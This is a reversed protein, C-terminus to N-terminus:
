YIVIAVMVSISQQVKEYILSSLRIARVPCFFLSSFKSGLGYSSVLTVDKCSHIHLGYCM